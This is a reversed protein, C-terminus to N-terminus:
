QKYFTMKCLTKDKRIFHHYLAALIHGLILSWVVWAGLYSHILDAPEELQELTFGALSYIQIDRFGTIDFLLFYTINGRGSSLYDAISLYGTLPMIIMVAYLAYHGVHAALHQLRTGPEPKPMPSFFRWFIRLSVVVAVTIGISMHLQIATWKELESQAFWHRYYVACYSVLFLLAIIWHFWKAISGYAEDTNKIHM